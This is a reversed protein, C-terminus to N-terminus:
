SGRVHPEHHCMRALSTRENVLWDRAEDNCSRLKRNLTPVCCVCAQRDSSSTITYAGDKVRLRLKSCRYSTESDLWSVALIEILSM